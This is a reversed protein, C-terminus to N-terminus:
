KRPGGVSPIGVVDTLKDIFEAVNEPAIAIITDENEDWSREQRITLWGARNIYCAIAPQHHLVVSEDDNWNFRDSDDEVPKPKEAPKPPDVIAPLCAQAPYAQRCKTSCFRQPSGGSKARPVLITGCQECPRSTQSNQNNRDQIADHVSM